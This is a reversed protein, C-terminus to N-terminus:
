EEDLQQVAREIEEADTGSVTVTKGNREFSMSITPANMKKWQAVTYGLSAASFGSSVVLQVLDLVYGLEGEAPAAGILQPEAHRRAAPEDLLWQYLSEALEGASDAGECRITM